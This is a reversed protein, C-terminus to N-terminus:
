ANVIQNIDKPFIYDEKSFALPGHHLNIFSSVLATQLQNPTEVDPFSHISGKVNKTQKLGQHTGLAEGRARAWTYTKNGGMPLSLQELLRLYDVAM